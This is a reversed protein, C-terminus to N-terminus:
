IPVSLELVLLIENPYAESVQVDAYVLHSYSDLILAKM